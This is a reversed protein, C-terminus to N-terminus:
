RNRLLPAEGCSRALEDRVSLAGDWTRRVIAELWGRPSAGDVRRQTRWEIFPIADDRAISACAAMAFVCSAQQIGATQMGPSCWRNFQLDGSLSEAMPSVVRCAGHEAEV